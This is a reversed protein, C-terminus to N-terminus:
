LLLLFSIRNLLEVDHNLVLGSQREMPLPGEEEECQSAQRLLKQGFILPKLLICFYNAISSSSSSFCEVEVFNMLLVLLIERYIWWANKRRLIFRNKKFNLHIKSTISPLAAFFSVGFSCEKKRRIEEIKTQNQWAKNERLVLPLVLPMRLNSLFQRYHLQKCSNSRIGIGPEIGKNM